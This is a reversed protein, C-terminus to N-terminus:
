QALAAGAGCVIGLGLSSPLPFPTGAMVDREMLFASFEWLCWLLGRGSESALVPNCLLSPNVSVVSMHVDIHNMVPALFTTVALFAWARHPLLFSFLCQFSGLALEEFAPALCTAFLTLTQVLVQM